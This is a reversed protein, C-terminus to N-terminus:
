WYVSPDNRTRRKKKRSQPTLRVLCLLYCTQLARLNGPGCAHVNFSDDHAKGKRCSHTVRQVEQRAPSAIQMIRWSRPIELLAHTMMERQNPGQGQGCRGDSYGISIKHPSRIPQRNPKRTSGVHRFIGFKNNLPFLPRLVTGTPSGPPHIM